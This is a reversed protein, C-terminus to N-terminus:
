TLDLQFIQNIQPVLPVEHCELRSKPSKTHQCIKSSKKKKIIKKMIQSKHKQDPKKQRNQKPVMWKLSVIKSGRCGGM